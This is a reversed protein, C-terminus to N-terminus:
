LLLHVLLTKGEIDEVNSNYGRLSLYNVAWFNKHVAAYLMPTFGEPTIAGQMENKCNDAFIEVAKM